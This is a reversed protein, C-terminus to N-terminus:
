IKNGVADARWLSSFRSIPVFIANENSNRKRKCVAKQGSSEYNDDTAIKFISFFSFSM